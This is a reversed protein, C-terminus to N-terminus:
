SLVSINSQILSTRDKNLPFPLSLLKETTNSPLNTQEDEDLKERAKEREYGQGKDRM